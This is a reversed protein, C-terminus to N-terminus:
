LDFTNFTICLDIYWIMRDMMDESDGHLERGWGKGYFAYGSLYFLAVLDCCVTVGAEIIFISYLPFISTM